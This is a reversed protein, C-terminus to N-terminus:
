INKEPGQVPIERQISGSNKRDFIWKVISTILSPEALALHIQSKAIEIWGSIERQWHEM